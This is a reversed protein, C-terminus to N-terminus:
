CVPLQLNGPLKRPVTLPWLPWAPLIQACGFLCVCVEQCSKRIKSWGLSGPISFDLFAKRLIYIQTWTLSVLCAFSTIQTLKLLRLADYRSWIHLHQNGLIKTHPIWTLKFSQLLEHCRVGGPNAAAQVMDVENRTNGQDWTCLCMMRHFPKKNEKIQKQGQIPGIDPFISDGRIHLYVLNKERCHTLCKM